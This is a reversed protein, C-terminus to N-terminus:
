RASSWTFMPVERTLGLAVPPCGQIAQRGPSGRNTGRGRASRKQRACSRGARCTRRSRSRAGAFNRSRNFSTSATAAENQYGFLRQYNQTLRRGLSPLDISYGPATTMGPSTALSATDAGGDTLFVPDFGAGSRRLSKCGVDKPEEHVAKGFLPTVRCSAGCAFAPNRLSSASEDGRTGTM